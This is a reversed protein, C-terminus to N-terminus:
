GLLLVRDTREALHEKCEASGGVHVLVISLLSGTQLRLVGDGTSLNEVLENDRGELESGDHEGGMRGELREGVAPDLELSHLLSGGGIHVAHNERM